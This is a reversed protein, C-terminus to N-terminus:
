RRIRWRDLWSSPEQATPPPTDPEVVGRSAGEDGSRPEAPEGTPADVRAPSFEERASRTPELTTAVGRARLRAFDGRLARAMEDKHSQERM